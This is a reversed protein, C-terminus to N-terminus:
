RARFKVAAEARSRVHLKEYINHLHTRVTAPSVFLREAIEKYRLGQTLLDLIETERPSLASLEKAEATNTESPVHFSTLVRRAIEGTMPSGGNHLDAIFEMLKAPPTNKLIYASAGAQLATFVNTDDMFVTLMMYSGRFGATRLHKMCEVGSMGPLDIDMLIINPPSALLPLMEVAEEGSAWAGVSEFGPTGSLLIHLSNRIDHTDEVLAVRIPSQHSM